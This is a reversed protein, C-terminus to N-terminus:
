ENIINWGAPVGSTGTPLNTMAANKVFTGTSSVGYTWSKLCDTASIDTAMMKIYNLNTCRSFMGEYCYNNLIPAPLLPATTLNTCRDFMHYYCAGSLTTAALILNSADLLNTYNYFLKEFTYIAASSLSTKNVFNDGYIMSMINGYIKVQATGGFQWWGFEMYAYGSAECKLLLKEGNIINFSGSYPWSNWTDGNTSSYFIDRSLDVSVEGTNVIGFTVTGSTIAEITFYDQSYDHKTIPWIKNSGLYIANIPNSGIYAGSITSLDFGNM